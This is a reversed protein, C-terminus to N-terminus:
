SKRAAKECRRRDSSMMTCRRVAARTGGEDGDAQRARALALYAYPSGLLDRGDLDEIVRVGAARARPLAIQAEALEAQKAPNNPASADLDRLTELSWELNGWPAWGMGADIKGEARVVALAFVRVARRHLPPGKADFSRVQPFQQEIRAAAWLPHDNALEGEALAVQGAPTAQFREIELEIGNICAGASSPLTVLGVLVAFAFARLKM